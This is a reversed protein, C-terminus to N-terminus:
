NHSFRARKMKKKKASPDKPVFIKRKPQQDKKGKVSVINKSSGSQLATSWADEQGRIAYQSLNLEKLKELEKKQKVKIEAAAEDLDQALSQPTPEMEVRKEEAIEKEVEQSLIENLQQTLKRVVRNFLGLIQTAPLDLEKMLDDVTKHQLGIGLLIALQVASFKANIRNLFFLQSISPLLDVILHYDAMNRAYLDLRNLDYRSLHSLLERQQLATHEPKYTNHHIMSLALSPAFARFQYACLSLFRKRFDKWFAMLWPEKDTKMEEKGENLLRLMICSHEGTLDNTTQRLYVPLYGAKKWFKLLNATLGFSVGLYDLKEAQRETLKSLLPPLNKKPAIVEELLGVSEEQVTTVERKQEAESLRPFKGEFYDQLIQLSRSGYGMGQYDPHTAIRIVRAGSLRPFDNDQFQQSITWPIMDGSARQGRSLSNMITQKSIEGEFCIQVVCLIEPLSNQAPNVPGLLCFIHHAPADSLLQLDNPTNKYHASVYISM